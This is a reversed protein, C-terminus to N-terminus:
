QLNTGQVRAAEAKVLGRASVALGSLADAGFEM